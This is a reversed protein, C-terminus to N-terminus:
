EVRIFRCTWHDAALIDRLIASVRESFRSNFLWWYSQQKISSKFIKKGNIVNTNCWSNLLKTWFFAFITPPTTAAHKKWKCSWTICCNSQMVFYLSNKWKLLRYSSNCSSRYFSFKWLMAVKLFSGTCAFRCTDYTWWQIQCHLLNFQGYILPFWM